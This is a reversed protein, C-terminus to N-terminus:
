TLVKTRLLQEIVPEDRPWFAYVGVTGFPKRLGEPYDAVTKVASLFEQQRDSLKGGDAKLEVFVLRPPDAHLLILDAIGAAERAGVFGGARDARMPAPVHWVKWGFRVAMEVVRKQLDRELM